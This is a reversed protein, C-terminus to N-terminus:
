RAYRFRCRPTVVWRGSRSTALTLESCIAPQDGGHITCHCKNDLASCVLGVMLRDAEVTCAARPVTVVLAERDVAAGHLEYYHASDATIPAHVAVVEEGFEIDADPTLSFAFGRCCEAECVGLWDLCDKCQEARAALSIAGDRPM